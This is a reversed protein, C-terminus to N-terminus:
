SSTGMSGIKFATGIALLIFIADRFGFMSWFVKSNSAVEREIGKKSDDVRNQVEADSLGAVRDHAKQLEADWNEDETAEYEADDPHQGRLTEFAMMHELFDRPNDVKLYKNAFMPMFIFLLMLMKALMIGGFAIGAAIVGGLPNAERYGSYMGIGALGGLGWAIYGIQLKTGYAVGFWIVAGLAAGAASLLCGMLFRNGVVAAGIVAKAGGALAAQTAAAKASKAKAPNSGCGPCRNAGAAVPAGCNACPVVAHLSATPAAAANTAVGAFLDDDLGGSNAEESGYESEPTPVTQVASCRPCKVRRGAAAAPAKISGGCEACAFRIRDDAAPREAEAVAAAGSAVPVRFETSCKPCRARKGAASEPLRFKAECGGCRVSIRDATPTSM